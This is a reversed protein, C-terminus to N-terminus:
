TSVTGQPALLEAVKPKQPSTIWDIMKPIADNKNGALFGVDINPFPTEVSEQRSYYKVEIEGWSSIFDQFSQQVEKWHGCLDGLVGSQNTQPSTETYPRFVTDIFALRRLHEMTPSPYLDQSMQTVLADACSLGAQGIAVLAIEQEGQCSILGLAENLLYIETRTGVTLRGGKEEIAKAIKQACGERSSKGPVPAHTIKTVQVSPGRQM